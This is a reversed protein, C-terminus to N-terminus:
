FLRLVASLLTEIPHPLLEGALCCATSCVAGRREEIRTARSFSTCQCLFSAPLRSFMKIARRSIDDAHWARSFSGTIM